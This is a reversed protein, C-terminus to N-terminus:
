TTADPEVGRRQLEERLADDVVITSPHGLRQVLEKELQYSIELEPTSIESMRTARRERARMVFNEIDGSPIGSVGPGTQSKRPVTRPTSEPEAELEPGRRSRQRQSQRIRQRERKRQRLMADRERLQEETRSVAFLATGGAAVVFAGGAGVLLTDGLTWESASAADSYSRPGPSAGGIVHCTDGPRMTEGDCTPGESKSQYTRFALFLLFLGVIGFFTAMSLYGSRMEKM